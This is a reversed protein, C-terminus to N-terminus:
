NFLTLTGLVLLVFGVVRVLWTWAVHRNQNRLGFSGIYSAMEDSAVVSIFGFVALLIPEMNGTWEGLRIYRLVAAAFIVCALIQPWYYRLYAKLVDM